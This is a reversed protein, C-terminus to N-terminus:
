GIHHDFAFSAAATRSTVELKTFINSLHRAVTKESIFLLAAIEPNTRGAAVLRLVDVERATLGNPYTPSLLEAAEREAPAAGLEALSRQAASLETVASEEDGLARLARGLVVRCRATEYRAGLREWVACARRVASMAASADASELAVLAAAYDARAHVSPCGFSAAISQLEAALAAAEDHHNAAALVEV